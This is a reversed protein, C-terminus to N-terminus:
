FTLSIVTGEKTPKIGTIIHLDIENKEENLSYVVREIESNMNVQNCLSRVLSLNEMSTNFFFLYSMSVFSKKPEIRMNFHGNQYDYKVVRCEADDEWVPNCSMEQLAKDILAEVTKVDATNASQRGSMRKVYPVLGEWNRPLLMLLAIIVLLLVYIM